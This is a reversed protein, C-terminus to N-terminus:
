GDFHFRKGFRANESIKGYNKGKKQSAQKSVPLYSPLTLLDNCYNRHIFESISDPFIKLSNFPCNSYLVSLMLWNM